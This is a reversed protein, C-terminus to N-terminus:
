ALREHTALFGVVLEYVLGKDVGHLTLSKLTHSCEEELYAFVSRQAVLPMGPDDTHARIVFRSDDDNPGLEADVGLVHLERLRPRVAALLAAVGADFQMELRELLPSRVFPSVAESRAGTTHYNWLVHVSVARLQPFALPRYLALHESVTLSRV